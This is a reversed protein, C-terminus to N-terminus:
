QKSVSLPPPLYFLALVRVLKAHEPDDRLDDPTTLLRSRQFKCSPPDLEVIRRLGVFCVCREKENYAREFFIFCYPL